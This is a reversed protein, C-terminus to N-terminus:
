TSPGKPFRKANQTEMNKETIGIDGSCIVRHVVM